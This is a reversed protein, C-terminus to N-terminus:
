RPRSAGARLGARRPASHVGEFLALLAARLGELTSQSSVDGAIAERISELHELMHQEADALADQGALEGERQRHRMAEAAAATREADLERRQERWDEADLRGDQYDRKVREMREVAQQEARESQALLVGAEALQRDHAAAV